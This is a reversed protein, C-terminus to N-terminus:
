FSRFKNELYSVLHKISVPENTAHEVTKWSTFTRGYRNFHEDLWARLSASGGSQRMEVDIINGPLARNAAALLQAAYINGLAYTPFYGWQGLSWHVDQLCGQFDNDPRVGLYKESAAGWAEPLDKASLEGNIMRRELDFRLFIHFNYTVEDTGLRRCPHEATNMGVYLADADGDRYIGPFGEVLRDALWDSFGRSRGIFNEVLRSQSEDAGLGPARALTHPVGLRAFSQAYIAHGAEHLTSHLGKLWSTQHFRTTMRVDRPGLTHCFARDSDVVCGAASDFGVADLVDRELSRRGDDDLPRMMIQKGESPILSKLPELQEALDTFLDNIVRANVGPEWLGCLADYPEDVYGFHEASERALDLIKELEPLFVSFDGKTADRRAEAWASRAHSAAEAFRSSFGAPLRDALDIDASVARVEPHDAGVEDVASELARKLDVSTLADHHLGAIFGRQEARWAGAASARAVRDDWYLVGGISEVIAVQRFASRLQDLAPSQSM